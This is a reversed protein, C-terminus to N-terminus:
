RKMVGWSFSYIDIQEKHSVEGKIGDIKLFYDFQSGGAVADLQEDSLEVEKRVEEPSFEYGRTKAFAVLEDVSATAKNGAGSLARTMEDRLTGDEALKGKFAEFAQKSM